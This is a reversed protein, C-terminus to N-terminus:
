SHTKDVYKSSQKGNMFYQSSLVIILGNFSYWGLNVASIVFIHENSEDVDAHPRCFVIFLMFIERKRDLLM